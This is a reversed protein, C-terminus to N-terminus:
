GSVDTIQYLLVDAYRRLPSVDFKGIGFAGHPSPVSLRELGQELRTISAVMRATAWYRTTPLMDIEVPVDTYDAAM